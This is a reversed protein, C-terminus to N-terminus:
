TSKFGMSSKEPTGHNDKIEIQQLNATSTLIQNVRRRKTGWKRTSANDSSSEIVWKGNFSTYTVTPKNDGTIYKVFDTMDEQPIWGAGFVVSIDMAEIDKPIVTKLAEKYVPNNTEQFKRKVNGSLYEEKTVWGDIPDDFIFGDLEKIIQEESKGTIDSM